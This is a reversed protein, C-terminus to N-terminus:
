RAVARNSPEWGAGAPMHESGTSECSRGVQEEKPAAKRCDIERRGRRETRGRRTEAVGRSNSVKPQSGAARITNGNLALNYKRNGFQKSISHNANVRYVGNLNVFRTENKRSNFADSIQVVNRVVANEIFTANANISYNLKPKVSKVKVM